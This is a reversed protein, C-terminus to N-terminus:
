PRPHVNSLHVRDRIARDFTALRDGDEEAVEDRERLERASEVRLRQTVQHQPEELAGRRHDLTVAPGHLLEDAVLDHGDEAHRDRVLVVCQSRHAGGDGHVLADGLEVAVTVHMELQPDPDVGALHHGPIRGGAVAEDAAVGHRDPLPELLRGRRALDHEALRCVAEDTVRHSRRLEVGQRQLSLGLLRGGEPELGDVGRCRRDGAAVVRRENTLL